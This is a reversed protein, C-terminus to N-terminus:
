ARLTAGPREPHPTFSEINNLAQLIIRGCADNAQEADVLRRFCFSFRDQKHLTFVDELMAMVASPAPQTDNAKPVEVVARGLREDRSMRKLVIDAPFLRPLCCAQGGGHGRSGACRMYFAISGGRQRPAPRHKARGVREDDSM